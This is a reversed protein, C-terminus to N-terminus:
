GNAPKGIPKGTAYAAKCLDTNHGSLGYLRGDYWIGGPLKSPDNDKMPVDIYHGFFGDYEALIALSEIPTAQEKM